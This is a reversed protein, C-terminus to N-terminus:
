PRPKDAESGSSSAKSPMGRVPSRGPRPEARDRRRQSVLEALGANAREELAKQAARYRELAARVLGVQDPPLTVFRTRGGESYSLVTTEHLAEGKACRCNAKGCRRRNVVVSGRLYRPASTSHQVAIVM